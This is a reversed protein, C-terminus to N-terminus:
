GARKGKIEKWVHIVEFVTFVFYLIMFTLIFAPAHDPNFLSYVVLVGINIFLRITIGAMHFRVFGQDSGRLNRLYLAHFIISLCSFYSLILWRISNMAPTERHDTFMFITGILIILGALRLLYSKM